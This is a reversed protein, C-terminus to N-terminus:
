FNTSPKGLVENFREIRNKISNGRLVKSTDAQKHGIFVQEKTM